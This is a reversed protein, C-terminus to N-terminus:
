CYILLGPLFDTFFTWFPSLLHTGLIGYLICMRRLLVCFKRWFVDHRLVYLLVYYIYSFQFLKRYKILCLPIFTSFLLLVFIDLCISVSCNLKFSWYTVSSIHSPIFFVLILHFHFCLKGSGQSVAFASLLPFNIAWLGKM